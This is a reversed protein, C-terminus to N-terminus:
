VRELSYATMQKTVNHYLKLKTGISLGKAARGGLASVYHKGKLSEVVYFPWATSPAEVLEVFDVFQVNRNKTMDSLEGPECLGVAEANEPRVYVLRPATKHDYVMAGVYKQVRQM